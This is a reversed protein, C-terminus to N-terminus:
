ETKYNIEGLTIFVENTEEDRLWRALAIGYESKLKVNWSEVIIKAILLAQETSIEDFIGTIELLNVWFQIETIPKDSARLEQYYEENFLESVFIVGDVSKFDPWMLKCFCVIFDEHLNQSKYVAHLYDFKSVKCPRNAVIFEEFNFLLNDKM